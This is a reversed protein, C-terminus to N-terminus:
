SHKNSPSTFLKLSYSLKRSFSRLSCEAKRALEEEFSLPNLSSADLELDEASQLAAFVQEKLLKKVEDSQCAVYSKSRVRGWVMDFSCLMEHEFHAEELKSFLTEAEKTKWVEMWLGLRYQPTGMEYQEYLDRLKAVWKKTTRDELNWILGLRGGPKLVRHIERLTEIQAFWHFAQAVIVVDQSGSELPISSATGDLIPIDPLIAAFTERMSRAPEVATIHYNRSLLLRTFKGSGAGLDLVRSENPVLGLKSQLCDVAAKPYSPRSSEYAVPEANFGKVAVEHVEPISVIPPLSM